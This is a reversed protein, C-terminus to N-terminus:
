QSENSKRRFFLIGTSFQLRGAAGLAESFGIFDGRFGATAATFFIRQHAEHLTGEVELAQPFGIFDGRFSATSANFFIEGEHQSLKSARLLIRPGEYARLKKKLFLQYLDGAFLRTECSLDQSSELVQYLFLAISQWNLWRFQSLFEGPIYRRIERKEYFDGTLAFILFQKGLAMAEFDGGKFERALQNKHRATEEGFGSLYKAEFLLYYDGILLVIDPETGDEYTPWFRFEADMADAPTIDVGLSQIFPYLFHKRSAYKFFSFVNSTLIDERNENDRSLKGHIEALYM